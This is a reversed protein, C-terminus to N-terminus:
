GSYGGRKWLESPSRLRWWVSVDRPLACWVAPDALVSSLYDEYTSLRGNRCTYEPHSNLLAMGGHEAIFRTKRLWLRSTTEALTEFLTHDQALTYPLEVFRGMFFPWITM